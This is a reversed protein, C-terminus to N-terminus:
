EKGREKKTQEVLADLNFCESLESATDDIDKVLGQNAPLAKDLLALGKNTIVGAAFSKGLQEVAQGATSVGPVSAMVAMPLSVLAIAAVGGLVGKWSVWARLGIRTRIDNPLDDKNILSRCKLKQETFFESELAEYNEVPVKDRLVGGIRMPVRAGVGWVTGQSEENKEWVLLRYNYFGYGTFYDMLAIRGEGDDIYTAKFRDFVVDGNHTAMEYGEFLVKDKMAADTWMAPIQVKPVSYEPMPVIRAACGSLFLLGVISIVVLMGKKMNERREGKQTITKGEPIEKLEIKEM